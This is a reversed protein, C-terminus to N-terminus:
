KKTGWRSFPYVTFTAHGEIRKRPICGLVRSDLSDMRNDGLVFYCDKPLKKMSLDSLNFDDTKKHSFNEKLVKGNIYLKNNKYEVHEGPLGIVRKIIDENDLHVVVIDFRKIEKFRYSLKDLLMVDQDQLTGMMSPGNVRIPSVIFFKVLIVILLVIAYPWIEKVIKKM